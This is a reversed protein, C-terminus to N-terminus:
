VRSLWQVVINFFIQADASRHQEPEVTVEAWLVVIPLHVRHARQGSFLGQGRSAEGGHPRSPSTVPAEGMQGSAEKGERQDSLGSCVNGGVWLM